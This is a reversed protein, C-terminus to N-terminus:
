KTEKLWYLVGQRRDWFSKEVLSNAVGQYGPFLTASSVGEQYLLRLLKGAESSPLKLHAMVPETHKMAIWKETIVQDVSRVVVPLPFQLYTINSTTFIGGQAHLNPNSARPATVVYVPFQQENTVPYESPFAVNIVWEINLGWIGIIKSLGDEAARRAAFYAAVLPQDSWDLLRTAVGHHQALALLPLLEDIPWGEVGMKLRLQHWGHPTRLLKSDGPVDLGQADVAWFFEQVRKFEADIQAENSSQVGLKPDFTYGLEAAPTTREAKSILKYADDDHGRFVWASRKEGWLQNALSLKSLLEEATSCEIEEIVNKTM